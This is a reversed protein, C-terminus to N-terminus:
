SALERSAWGIADEITFPREGGLDTLMLPVHPSVAYLFRQQLLWYADLDNTLGLQRRVDDLDPM